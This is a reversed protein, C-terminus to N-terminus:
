RNSPLSTVNEGTRSALFASRTTRTASVMERLRERFGSRELIRSILLFNKPSYSTMTQAAPKGWSSCGRWWAPYRDACDLTLWTEMGGPAFKRTYLDKQNELTTSRM